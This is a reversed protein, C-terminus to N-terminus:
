LSVIGGAQCKWWYVLNCLKDIFISDYTYTDENMWEYGFPLFVNKKFLKM